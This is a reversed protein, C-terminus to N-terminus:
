HQWVAVWDVHLQASGVDSPPSQPYGVALNLILEMAVSPIVAPDTVRFQQVGDVYWTVSDPEWDMAFVTSGASVRQPTYRHGVSGDGGDATRWHLNMAVFRDTGPFEAVDLEPPAGRTEAPILWFAPFMGRPDQPTRIAAAFYGYTFTHLPTGDWSQRGTSVMGSTWPYSKGDSGATPTREASLVLAGGNVAVQGPLYWQEEHNGANTCGADNWDYCTVWNAPDLGLGNFDDRFVQHWAGPAAPTASAAAGTATAEAAQPVVTLGHSAAPGACAATLLLVCSGAVVASRRGLRGRRRPDAVTM